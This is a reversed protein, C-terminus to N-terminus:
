PSIKALNAWCLGDGDLGLLALVSGAACCAVVDVHGLADVASEALLRAWDVSDDLRWVGLVGGLGSLLQQVVLLLQQCVSVLPLRLQSSDDSGIGWVSLRILALWPFSSSNSSQRSTLVLTM